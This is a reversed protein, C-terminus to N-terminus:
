PYDADNRESTCLFNMGAVLEKVLMLVITLFRHSRTWSCVGMHMYVDYCSIQLGPWVLQHARLQASSGVRTSSVDSNRNWTIVELEWKTETGTRTEVDGLM